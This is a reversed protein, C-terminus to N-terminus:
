AEVVVRAPLADVGELKLPFCYVTFEPSPISSLNTLNEIVFVDNQALLRDYAGHTRGRGLGPADIGVMNIKADILWDVVEAALQPHHHYKASGAFTSWDTRLFLFDGAQVAVQSQIDALGIERDTIATVDVLKGRGVMREPLIRKEGYVLDIHTATHAPLSLMTTEFQGESPHHFEQVAVDVPPTGARFVAGPEITLSVDIWM